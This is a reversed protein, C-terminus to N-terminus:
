VPIHLEATLAMSMASQSILPFVILFRDLSQEAARLVRHLGIDGEAEFLVSFLL